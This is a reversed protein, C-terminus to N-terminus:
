LYRVMNRKHTSLIHTITNSHSITMINNNNNHQFSVHSHCSSNITTVVICIKHNNQKKDKWSLLVFNLLIQLKFNKRKVVRGKRKSKM